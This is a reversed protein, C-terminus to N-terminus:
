KISRASSIICKLSHIYIIVAFVSTNSKIMMMMKIMMIKINLSGTFLSADDLFVCFMSM